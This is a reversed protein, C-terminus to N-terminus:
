RIPNTAFMKLVNAMKRPFVEALGRDLVLLTMNASRNRRTVGALTQIHDVPRTGLKLTYDQRGCVSRRAYVCVCEEWSECQLGGAIRVTFRRAYVCM